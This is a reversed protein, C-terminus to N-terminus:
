IVCRFGSGRYLSSLSFRATRSDSKSPAGDAQKTRTVSPISSKGAAELYVREAAINDPVPSAQSAPENDALGDTANRVIAACICRRQHSPALVSLAIEKLARLLRPASVLLPRIASWEASREEFDRKGGQLADQSWEELFQDTVFDDHRARKRFVCYAVWAPEVGPQRDEESIEAGSQSPSCLSM